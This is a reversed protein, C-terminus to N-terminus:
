IIINFEERLRLIEDEPFNIGDLSLYKLKDFDDKEYPFENFKNHDLILRKIESANALFSPLNSINNKSLDLVELTLLSSKIFSPVENLKMASLSISNLNKLREFSKLIVRANNNEKIKIEKLNESRTIKEDVEELEPCYIRLAKISLNEESKINKLSKSIIELTDYGEIEDPTITYDKKRTKITYIKM